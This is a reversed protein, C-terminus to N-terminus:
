PEPDSSSSYCVFLGAMVKNEIPLSAMGGSSLTNMCYLLTIPGMSEM